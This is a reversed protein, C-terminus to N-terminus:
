EEPTVEAFQDIMNGDTMIKRWPILPIDKRNIIEKYLPPDKFIAQVDVSRVNGPLTIWKVWYAFHKIGNGLWSRRTIVENGDADFTSQNWHVNFSVYYWGKHELVIQGYPQLTRTIETYEAHGQIIARSNDRIFETSYSLPFAPNNRDFKAYKVLIDNIEQLTRANILQVHESAGGMVYVKINLNELQKSYDVTSNLKASVFFGNFQSELLAKAKADTSEIEIKVYILRGYTVSDVLLPPADANMKNRVEDLTVSFDFLDTPNRVSSVSVTYFIQEFKSILITKKNDMAGKFDIDGEINSNKSELGMKVRLQEKSKVFTYDSIYNTM